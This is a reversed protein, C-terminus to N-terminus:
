NNYTNAYCPLCTYIAVNQKEISMELEFEDLGNKGKNKKKSLFFFNIWIETNGPAVCMWQLQSGVTKRICFILHFESERKNISYLNKTNTHTTNNGDFMNKFSKERKWMWNKERQICYPWLEYILHKSLSTRSSIKMQHKSNHAHQFFQKVSQSWNANQTKKKQKTLALEGFNLKEEIMRCSINSFIM